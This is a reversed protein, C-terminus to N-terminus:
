FSFANVIVLRDPKLSGYSNLCAKEANENKKTRAKPGYQAALVKTDKSFIFSLTGHIGNLFSLFLKTGMISISFASLTGESWSPSSHPRHLINRSYALPRLQLSRFELPVSTLSPLYVCQSFGLSVSDIQIKKCLEGRAIFICGVGTQNDDCCLILTMDHIFYSIDSPQHFLSPFDPISLTMLNLWVVNNSSNIKDNTVWIETNSSIRSQKLLAFRDGKFVTLVLKDRLGSVHKTCPLLCFHMSIETSFDFSGLFHERTDENYATWYLNGNLSVYEGRGAMMPWKPSDIFKFAQSACEFIAFRHGIKLKTDYFRNYYGFIKYGQRLWPNWITVGQNWFDRFLFGDCATIRTFAWKEAEFHFQCALERVEIKPDVDDLGITRISYIKSEPLIIFQPHACGMIFWKDNLLDNWHKCVSRLRVLSGPPLRCLIEEELEWPLKGWAM